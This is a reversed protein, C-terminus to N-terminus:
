DQCSTFIGLYIMIKLFIVIIMLGVCLIGIIEFLKDFTNQENKIEKFFCVGSSCTKSACESSYDCYDGFSKM